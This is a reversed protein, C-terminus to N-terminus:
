KDDKWKNYLKIVKRYKTATGFDKEYASVVENIAERYDQKMEPPPFHGNLISSALRDLSNFYSEKAEDYMEQLFDKHTTETRLKVAIEQFKSRRNRMDQEFSLLSNWQASKFQRYAIFGGIIITLLAAVAIIDAWFYVWYTAQAVALSQTEYPTM